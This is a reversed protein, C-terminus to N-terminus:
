RKERLQTFSFIKKEKCKTVTLGLMRFEKVVGMEYAESTRFTPYKRGKVM